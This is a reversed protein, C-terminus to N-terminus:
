GHQRRVRGHCRTLQRAGSLGPAAAILSSAWRIPDSQRGSDSTLSSASAAGPHLEKTASLGWTGSSRRV